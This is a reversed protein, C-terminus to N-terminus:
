VSQPFGRDCRSLSSSLHKNLCLCRPCCPPHTEETWPMCESICVCMCVCLCAHMCACVCVCAHISVCVCVCLCTHQCVCVHISLCVRMCVLRSHVVRRRPTDAHQETPNEEEKKRINSQQRSPKRLFPLVNDLLHTEQTLQLVFVGDFVLAAVELFVCCPYTFCHFTSNHPTYFVDM